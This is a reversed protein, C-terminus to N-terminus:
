EHLYPGTLARWEDSSACHKGDMECRVPPTEGANLLFSGVVTSENVNVIEYSVYHRAVTRGLVALCRNSGRHYHSAFDRVETIAPRDHGHAKAFWDRADRGCGAELEYLTNEDMGPQAPGTRERSCSLLAPLTALAVAFCFRRGIAM